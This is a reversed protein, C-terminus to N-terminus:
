TMYRYTKSKDSKSSVYFMAFDIKKKCQGTNSCQM